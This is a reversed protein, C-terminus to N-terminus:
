RNGRSGRAAADAPQPRASRGRALRVHGPAAREAAACRSGGGPDRAARRLAGDAAGGSGAPQRTGRGRHPATRRPLRRSALPRAARGVFRRGAAGAAARDPRQVPLLQRLGYPLGRPLRYSQRRAAPGRLRARRQDGPGAVAPRRHRAPAADPRIDAPAAASGRHLDPAPRPGTRRRHRGRGASRRPPRPGPRRLRRLAARPAPQSRRLQHGGRVACRGRLVRVGDRLAGTAVADLVATKGVGAEGSLLLAAGHVESNGFFSHIFALDRDRGVLRTSAPGVTSDLDNM